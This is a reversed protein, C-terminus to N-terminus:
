SRGFVGYLCYQPLQRDLWQSELPTFFRTIMRFGAEVLLTRLSESDYFTKHDRDCAFGRRGPVGVVLRGNTVLVRRVEALLPRPEVLHELVNDMIAGDFAGGPFDLIDPQMLRADLGRARCYEVSHGNVDVGTTGARYALLDGIGCGVDLVRGNVHQCLRPYLWWRRYLLGSWSRSRLYEFYTSHDTM